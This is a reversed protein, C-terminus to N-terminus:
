KNSNNDTGDTKGEKRENPLKCQYDYLINMITEKSPKPMDSHKVEMILERIEQDM